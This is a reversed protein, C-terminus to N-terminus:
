LARVAVRVDALVREGVVAFDEVVEDDGTGQAWRRYAEAIVVVCVQAALHAGVESEGRLAFGESAVEVLHSSKMAERERLDPHLDIVAHRRAAVARSDPLFVREALSRVVRAIVELHPLGADAGAITDTLVQSMLDEGFLVERKSAFHRFFTSKTLGARQAIDIVSTEAYGREAFLEIAAQALRQPADPEWRPM